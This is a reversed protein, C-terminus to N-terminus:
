LAIQKTMLLQCNGRPLPVPQQQFTNIQPLFRKLCDEESTYAKELNCSAPNESIQLKMIRSSPLKLKKLVKTSLNESIQQLVAIQKGQLLLKKLEEKREGKTNCVQQKETMEKQKRKGAVM